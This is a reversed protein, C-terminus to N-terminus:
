TAGCLGQDDRYDWCAECGGICCSLSGDCGCSSCTCWGSCSDALSSGDNGFSTRAPSAKSERADRKLIVSGGSKASVVPSMALAVVVLMLIMFVLKRNATMSNVGKCLTRTYEDISPPARWEM